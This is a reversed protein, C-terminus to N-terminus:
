RWYWKRSAPAQSLRASGGSWLPWHTVSMSVTAPPIPDADRGSWLRRRVISCFLSPTVRPSALPPATKAPAASEQLHDHLGCRCSVAFISLSGAVQSQARLAVSRRRVRGIGNGHNATARTRNGCGAADAMKSREFQDPCRDRIPVKAFGRRNVTSLRISAAMTGPQSWARDIAARTTPTPQARMMASSSIRWGCCIYIMFTTQGTIASKPVTM